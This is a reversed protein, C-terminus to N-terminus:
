EIVQYVNPCLIFDDETRQSNWLTQAVAMFSM